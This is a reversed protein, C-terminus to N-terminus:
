DPAVVVTAQWNRTGESKGTVQFFIIYYGMPVPRAQENTGDWKYSGSVPLISNNVLTKVLYGQKNFIFMSGSNGPHDLSYIIRTYSPITPSASSIIRPEVAFKVQPSAAFFQSNQYGPTAYGVSESGSFWNNADNSAGDPDARELSIGNHDILLTHHMNRHYIFGDIITGGPAVLALSGEQDPLSPLEDVELFFLQASQPYQSKIKFPDTTLVLYQGPYIMRNDSALPTFDVLSNSQWRAFRWDKLNIAKDSRNFLEVFREGLPRPNFLIENIVLDGSDATQPLGVLSGAGDDLNVNQNCDAFGLATVQYILGELLSDKLKIIVEAKDAAFNFTDIRITPEIIIQKQSSYSTSLEQDFYLTLQLPHPAFSNIIEPASLDPNDTAVSNPEGPTGGLVSTSATWNSFGTCPYRVDIMEISWGGHQKLNNKYWSSQYNVAHIINGLSDAISVIDGSNNLAPWSTLELHNSSEPFRSESAPHLTLYSGPTLIYAPLLVSSSGDSLTWNLLNIAKEGRNYVELYETEPLQLPPSPDAMIESIIVDHTTATGAEWFQFPQSYSGTNNYLDKIENIELLYSVNDEFEFPFEIRWSHGSGNLRVPSGHGQIIFQTLLPTQIPEDFVLEIQRNDLVKFSQITPPDSDQFLLGQVKINDFYFSKSRTTTYQCFIGFYNARQHSNDVINGVQEQDDPSTGAYLTWEGLLDRTVKVLLNVQPSDVIGETGALRIHKSLDQRYLAVEDQSGGIKLYYGNLEASLDMLDSILYVHSLNRSSPNFNMRIDFQWTAEATIHCTTSLYASGTTSENLQLQNLSNVIFSGTQGNWQPNATFNGDSFDEDIQAIAVYSMLFALLLSTIRM